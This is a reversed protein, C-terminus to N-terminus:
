PLKRFRTYALLIEFLFLALAPLLAMQFLENYRKHGKTEIKTKEMSDIEAFIKKLGEMDLARFYKGGTINAIQTLGEEDIEVPVFQYSKGLLPHVVPMPAKGQSGVGITYVRIKMTKALEAATSPDIEGANNMGDTLLIIIRSNAKSNRLRNVSTALALGIATSNEDVMGIEIHEMFNKLVGYDVTLPCQTYPETAFVVIGIRDTKRGAIFDEAVSKAVELRNRKKYDLDEAKMSGSVDLALIIDVGETYIDRIEM